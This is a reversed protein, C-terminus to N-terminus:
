VILREQYLVPRTGGQRGHQIRRCLPEGGGCVGDQGRWAPRRRQFPGCVQLRPDGDRRFRDPGESDFTGKYRIGLTNLKMEGHMYDGDVTLGKLAEEYEKAARAEEKTNLAGSKQRKEKASKGAVVSAHIKRGIKVSFKLVEFTLKTIALGSM